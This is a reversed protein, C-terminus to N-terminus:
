ILLHSAWDDALLGLRLDECLAWPRLLPSSVPLCGRAGAKQPWYGGHQPAAMHLAGLGGLPWDLGRALASRLHEAMPHLLCCASFTLPEPSLLVGCEVPFLNGGLVRTSSVSLHGQAALFPTPCLGHFLVM